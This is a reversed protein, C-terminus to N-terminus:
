SGPYHVFSIETKNTQPYHPVHQSEIHFTIAEM